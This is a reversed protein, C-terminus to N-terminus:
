CWCANRAACIARAPRGIRRNKVKATEVRATERIVQMNRPTIAAQTNVKRMAPRVRRRTTGTTQTPLQVALM